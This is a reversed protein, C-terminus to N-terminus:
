SLVSEKLLDRFKKVNSEGNMVSLKEILKKALRKKRGKTEVVIFHPVERGLDDVSSIKKILLRENNETLIENAHKGIITIEAVLSPNNILRKIFSSKETVYYFKILPGFEVDFDLYALGTIGEKELLNIVKKPPKIKRANMFGDSSFDPLGNDLILCWKLRYFNIWSIM